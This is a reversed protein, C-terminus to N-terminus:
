KYIFTVHSQSATIDATIGTSFYVEVPITKPFGSEDTVGSQLFIQVNGDGDSAHDSVEITGGTVWKGIIIAKLYGPTAKVVVNAAAAAKYLYSYGDAKSTRVLGTKNM